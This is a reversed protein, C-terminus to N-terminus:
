ASTVSADDDNGEVDSSGPESSYHMDVVQQEIDRYGPLKDLESPTYDGACCTAHHFLARRYPQHSIPRLQVLRDNSTKTANPDVRIFRKNFWYAFYLGNAYLITFAHKEFLDHCTRKQGHTGCLLVRNRPSDYCFPEASSQLLKYEEPISEDDAHESVDTDLGPVIHALSLVVDGPSLQGKVQRTESRGCIWCSNGFGM